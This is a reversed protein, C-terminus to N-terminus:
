AVNSTLYDVLQYFAAFYGLSRLRPESISHAAFHLEWISTADKSTSSMDARIEKM